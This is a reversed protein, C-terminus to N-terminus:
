RGNRDTRRRPGPELVLAILVLSVLVVLWPLALWVVLSSADTISSRGAAVAIALVSLPVVVWAVIIVRITTRAHSAM